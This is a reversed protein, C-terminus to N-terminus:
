ELALLAFVPMGEGDVVFSFSGLGDPAYVFQRYEGIAQPTQWSVGDAGDATAVQNAAAGTSKQASLEIQGGDGAVGAHAHDKLHGEIEQGDITLMDPDNGAGLTVPAHHADPTGEHADLEAQTAIDTSVQKTGDSVAAHGAPMPWPNHYTPTDEHLDAAHEEPQNVDDFAADDSPIHTARAASAYGPLSVAQMRGPGYLTIPTAGPPTIITGNPPPGAQPPDFVVWLSRDVIGAADGPLADTYPPTNYNAGSRHAFTYGDASVVVLAGSNERGLVWAGYQCAEGIRCYRTDTSAQSDYWTALGDRTERFNGDDNPTGFMCAHDADDPDLWLAYGYWGNASAAPTSFTGAVPDFIYSHYGGGDARNGWILGSAPHALTMQGPMAGIADVAHIAWTQGDNQSHAVRDSFAMSATFGVSVISNDADIGSIGYIWSGNVAKVATWNDGHDVSRCAWVDVWTSGTGKTMVYVYGTVRDTIVSRLTQTADGTLTIADAASLVAAWDGDTRRYLDGGAIAFMRADVPSASRDVCFSAVSLSGLGTNVAAWVPQDGTATFRSTYYIGKDVPACWVRNPYEAM